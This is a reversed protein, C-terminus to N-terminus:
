CHRGAFAVNHRGGTWAAVPRSKTALVKEAQVRAAGCPAAALGALLVDDGAWLHAARKMLAVLTPCAQAGGLIPDGDVPQWDSPKIVAGAAEVGTAARGAHSGGVARRPEM